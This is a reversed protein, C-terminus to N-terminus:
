LIFLTAIDRPNENPAVIKIGNFKRSLANFCNFIYLQALSNTFIKSTVQMKSLISIQSASEDIDEVEPWKFIYLSSTTRILLLKEIM